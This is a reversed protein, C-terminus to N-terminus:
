VDFEGLIAAWTTDDVFYHKATALAPSPSQAGPAPFGFQNAPARPAVEQPLVPAKGVRYHFSPVTTHVHTLYDKEM